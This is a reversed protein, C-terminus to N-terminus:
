GSEGNQRSSAGAEIKDMLERNAMERRSPPRGRWAYYGSPSVDLVVCMQIVPFEGRHAEIFQFRM